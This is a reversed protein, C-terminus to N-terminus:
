PPNSPNWLEMMMEMEMLCCLVYVMWVVLSLSCCCLTAGLLELLHLMNGHLLLTASVEWDPVSRGV